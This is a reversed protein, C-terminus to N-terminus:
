PSIPPAYVHNLPMMNLCVDTSTLGWSQVVCSVGFIITNLAVPVRKKTGTTGSTFLILAVDDPGNLIRHGSLPIPKTDMRKVIFTLDSKQELLFVEIGAEAIWPEGLGLRYVDSEIAVICRSRTLLVDSRFQELGGNVNVPAATYFVITALLALGLLSGNPLALVM